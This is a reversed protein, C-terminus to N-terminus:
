GKVDTVNLVLDVHQEETDQISTIHFFRPPTSPATDGLKEFEADTLSAYQEDTLTAYGEPYEGFRIRQAVNVGAIYRMTIKHTAISAITNGQTMPVNRGTIPEIRAWVYAFQAWLRNNQGSPGQNTVPSEVYVKHRLKGIEM